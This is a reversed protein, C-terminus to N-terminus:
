SSLLAGWIRRPVGARCAGPALTWRPMRKSGRRSLPPHCRGASREASTPCYWELDDGPQVSWQHADHVSLPRYIDEEPLCEERGEVWFSVLGAEDQIRTVRGEAFGKEDDWYVILDGPQIKRAHEARDAAVMQDLNNLARLFAAGPATSPGELLFSEVRVPTGLEAAIADIGGVLRDVGAQSAELEIM